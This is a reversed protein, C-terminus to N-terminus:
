HCDPFHLFWLRLLLSAPNSDSTTVVSEMYVTHRETEKECRITEESDSCHNNKYKVYIKLTSKEKPQIKYGIYNLVHQKSVGSFLFLYVM